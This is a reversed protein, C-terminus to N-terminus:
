GFCSNLSSLFFGVCSFFFQAQFISNFFSFSFFLTVQFNSFFFFFAKEKKPSHYFTAVVTAVLIFILHIRFSLQPYFSSSIIRMWGEDM